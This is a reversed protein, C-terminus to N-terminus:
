TGTNNLWSMQLLDSDPSLGEMEAEDGIVGETKGGERRAGRAIGRGEPGMQKALCFSSM